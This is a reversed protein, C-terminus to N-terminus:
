FRYREFIQKRRELLAPPYGQEWLSFLGPEKLLRKPILMPTAIADAQLDEKSDSSYGFACPVHLWHHALEHYMVWLLTIGVVSPHLGIIPHDRYIFYRGAEGMEATWVAVRELKVFHWFDEETFEKNNWGYPKLKKIISHIV